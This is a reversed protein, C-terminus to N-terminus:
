KRMFRNALGIREFFYSTLCHLFFSSCIFALYLVYYSFELAGRFIPNFIEISISLYGKSMQVPFGRFFTLYVVGLILTTISFALILASTKAFTRRAKTQIDKRNTFFVTGVLVFSEVSLSIAWFNPFVIALIISAAGCATLPFITFGSYIILFDVCFSYIYLTSFLCNLLIAALSIAEWANPSLFLSLSHHVCAFGSGILLIYLCTNVIIKNTRSFYNATRKKTREQINAEPVSATERYYDINEAIIESFDKSDKCYHKAVDALYDHSFEYSHGGHTKILGFKTMQNEKIKACLSINRIDEDWCVSYDSLYYLIALGTRPEDFQDVWKNFYYYLIKEPNSSLAAASLGQEQDLFTSGSAIISCVLEFAVLPISGNIVCTLLPIIVKAPGAGYGSNKALMDEIDTKNLDLYHSCKSKLQDIDNAQISLSYVSIATNSKKSFLEAVKDERLVYVLITSKADRKKLVDTLRISTLKPNSLADEFQDFVLVKKRKRNSCAAGRIYNFVDDEDTYSHEFFSVDYTRQNSLQFMSMFISKGCGSKGTLIIERSSNSSFVREITNIFGSFDRKHLIRQYELFDLASIEQQKQRQLWPITDDALRYNQNSICVSENKLLKEVSLKKGLDTKTIIGAFDKNQPKPKSDNQPSTNRLRSVRSPRSLIFKLLSPIATILISAVTSIIIEYQELLPAIDGISNKNVILSLLCFAIQILFVVIITIKQPQDLYIRKLYKKM